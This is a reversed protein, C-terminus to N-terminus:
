FFKEYSKVINIWQYKKILSKTPIFISLDNNDDLKSNLKDFKKFFLGSNKLTYRNQPVDYSIIPVQAHIMEILSPASGCTTHTHIYCYANLRITDLEEKNYLGDILIINEFTRYKSLVGLGYESTSFNSILVLKDERTKFVNLLEDIQNDPIARSISLFFKQDLFKYKNVLKKANGNKNLDGGYPIINYKNQYRSLVKKPLISIFYQNDFIIHDSFLNTFYFALKLYLKQFFNFKDRKWEIGGINTIINKRSFIQLLPILFIGQNGLLLLSDCGKIYSILISLFDYFIGELGSAKLPMFIVKSHAPISFDKNSDRSNFILYEFNENRESLNIVLQDWGGYNAYLGHSGIIAVKKKKSQFNM